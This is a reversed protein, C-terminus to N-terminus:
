VDGFDRSMGIVPMRFSGNARLRSRYDAESPILAEAETSLEAAPVWRHAGLDFRKLIRAPHGVAISLPPIDKTAVSSAGIVSGFGITVGKLITVRAGLWCNDGIRIIGGPTAGAALYPVFPSDNVHDSGVFHCDPGTLCYDGLEILSGASLFNRRGVFCFDGIVVCRDEQPCNLAVIMTDDSIVTGAGIRVKEWGYVQASKALRAGPGMHRARWMATSQRRQWRATLARMSKVIKM